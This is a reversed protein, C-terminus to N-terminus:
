HIWRPLIRLVMLESLTVVPTAYSVGMALLMNWAEVVISVYLFDRM